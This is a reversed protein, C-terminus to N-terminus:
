PCEKKSDFKNDKPMISAINSIARNILSVKVTDIM